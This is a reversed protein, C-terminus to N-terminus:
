LYWSRGHISVLLIFRVWRMWFMEIKLLGKASVITASWTEVVNLTPMARGDLRTVRLHVKLFMFIIMKRLSAYKENPYSVTYWESFLSRFNFAKERM